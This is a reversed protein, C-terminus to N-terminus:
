GDRVRGAHRRRDHAATWQHARDTRDGIASRRFAAAVAFPEVRRHRRSRRRRAGRDFTRGLAAPVGFVDFFQETVQLGSLREPDGAGDSLDMVVEIHGAIADFAKVERTLDLYDAAAAAGGEGQNKATSNYLKVIREPADYPLPRLLVGHIVSFMASTAGIGLALTLIVLLATARQRSLLRFAYRLDSTM